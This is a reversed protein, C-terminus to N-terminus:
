LGMVERNNINELICYQRLQVIIVAAISLAIITSHM